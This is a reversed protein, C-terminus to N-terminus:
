CATHPATVTAWYHGFLELCAEAPAGLVESSAGVLSYTVSDDYKQMSIFSDESVGSKEMIQDWVDSGHGDTVMTRLAKNILGYM